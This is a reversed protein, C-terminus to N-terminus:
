GLRERVWPLNAFHTTERRVRWGGSMGSVIGSNRDHGAVGSIVSRGKSPGVSRDDVGRRQVSADGRRPIEIQYTVNEIYREDQGVESRRRPELCSNLATAAASGQLGVRCELAAKRQVVLGLESREVVESLCKGALGLECAPVPVEGVLRGLIALRRVQVTPVRWVRYLERSCRVLPHHVGRLQVEEEIPCLSCSGCVAPSTRV